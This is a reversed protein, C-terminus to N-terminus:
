VKESIDIKIEQALSQDLLKLDIDIESIALDEVKELFDNSVSALRGIMTDIEKIKFKDKQKVLAGRVRLLNCIEPVYYTFLRSVDSFQQPDDDIEDMIKQINESITNLSKSLNGSSAAAAIGIDDIYESAEDFVQKHIPSTPAIPAIPMSITETQVEPTPTHELLAMAADNPEDHVSYINQEETISNCVFFYFAMVFIIFPFPSRLVTSILIDLGLLAIFVFRLKANAFAGSWFGPKEEDM